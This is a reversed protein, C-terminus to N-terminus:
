DSDNALLQDLSDDSEIDMDNSSKREKHAKGTNERRMPYEEEDSDDREARNEPAKDTQGLVNGSSLTLPEFAKKDKRAFISNFVPFFKFTKTGNGELFGCNVDSLIQRRDPEAAVLIEVEKFKIFSKSDDSAKQFMNLFKQNNNNKDITAFSPLNNTKYAAQKYFVCEVTKGKNAFDLKAPEISIVDAIGPLPNAMLAQSGAFSTDLMNQLNARIKERFSIKDRLSDEDFLFADASLKKPFKPQLAGTQNKLDDSHGSPKHRIDVAREDEPRTFSSSLQQKDLTYFEDIPKRRPIELIDEEESNLDLDYDAPIENTIHLREIDIHMNMPVYIEPKTLTHLHTIHAESLKQTHSVPFLLKPGPLASPLSTDFKLTCCFDEALPLNLLKKTQEPNM